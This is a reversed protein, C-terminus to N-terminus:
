HIVVKWVVVAVFIIIGVAYAWGRGEQLKEQEIM